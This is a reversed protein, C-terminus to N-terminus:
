GTAAFKEITVNSILKSIDSGLNNIIVDYFDAYDIERVEHFIHNYLYEAFTSALLIVINQGKIDSITAPAYRPTVVITYEGGIKERHERLRGANVGLLKNVTSKADVAFKKKNTIYLCEIDTNGAGGIRKADVNVFMNFGEELVEEFKYATNNQPNKSYEEIMKPLELLSSLEDTEGLEDLLLKPYFSYIEKIVDYKMREPDDLRLPMEAYSYVALMRKVFDKHEDALTIHGNTVTRATPVSKSNTKTPHFLKCIPEGKFENIIGIQSFLTVTFYEWEHVSNVFTHEDKKFMTAMDEDSKDRLALIDKVLKEYSSYDIKKVSVLILYEVERHYLKGGLRDDCLLQFLLRFLFLQINKSTGSGQHEFQFAFLMTIFIKRLKEDDNIYKLFLNGLPGFMFRKSKNEKYEYGFMWYELTNIRHGIADLPKEKLNRTKYLDLATLRDQMKYRQAVSIDTKCANKIDM